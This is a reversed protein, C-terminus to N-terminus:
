PLHTNLHNAFRYSDISFCRILGYLRWHFSYYNTNSVRRNDAKTSTYSDSAIRMLLCKHLCVRVCLCACVHVYVCMCMCECVCMCIYITFGCIYM